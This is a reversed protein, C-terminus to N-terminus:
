HLISGVSIWWTKRVKNFKEGQRHYKFEMCYKSKACFNGPQRWSITASTSSNSTIKVDTILSPIDTFFLMLENPVLSFENNISSLEIEDNEM